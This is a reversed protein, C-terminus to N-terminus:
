QYLPSEAKPPARQAFSVNTQITIPRSNRGSNIPLNKIEQQYLLDLESHTIEKNAKSLMIPMVELKHFKMEKSAKKENAYLPSL